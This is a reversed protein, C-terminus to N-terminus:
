YKAENRTKGFIANKAILETFPFIDYICFQNKICREVTSYRLTQIQDQMEKRQQSFVWTKILATRQAVQITKYEIHLTYYLINLHASCKNYLTKALAWLIIIWICVWFFAFSIKLDKCASMNFPVPDLSLNWLTVCFPVYRPGFFLRSLNKFKESVRGIELFYFKRANLALLVRLFTPSSNKCVWGALSICPGAARALLFSSFNSWIHTYFKILCYLSVLNGNGCPFNFIQKIQHRLV